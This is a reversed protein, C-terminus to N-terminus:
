DQDEKYKPHSGELGVERNEEAGDNDDSPYITIKTGEKRLPIEPAECLIRMVKRITPTDIQDFFTVRKELISYITDIQQHTLAVLYKKSNFSDDISKIIEEGDQNFHFDCVEYTTGDKRTMINHHGLNM